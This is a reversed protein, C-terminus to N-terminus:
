SGLPFNIGINVSGNSSLPVFQKTVKGLTRDMGLFMNFGKTHFNLLWGFGVGYTRASMNVSADFCKVPAVNASLRFDTWTYEGQIRTTNLLGFTLKRYVPLTYEVGLNMTAGLMRTKGGTDGMDDLEYISSFDDKIKDWEADFSNPQDDDVNFTYKDTNFTKVGNTSALMNNSWGIFGLDLLAASVTWDRAPKYTAGLDFAVGFGNVGTGDIKAGNVYRHNTNENVKTKYQFGKVNANVNGEATVTWDDEGLTLEARDLVADLYGGGVLVKVNAGVRWKDNINRSHGLSVEGYASAFARLNSIDYTKNAVGEKLLSFVSGPLHAETSVRANIAITNYGGWAKFGAALLTLKVDAGIRNKDSINKMVEEASVGPNMFTTTRGNVNYIVDSVGLTGQMGINMNGLAPMAFFSRSNDFAPNMQFRYTYDDLFYGSRTNQAGAILALASISLLSIRKINLKM